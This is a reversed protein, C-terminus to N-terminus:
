RPTQPPKNIWQDAEVFLGPKARNLKAVTQFLERQADTFPKPTDDDPM